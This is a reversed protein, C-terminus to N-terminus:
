ARGVIDRRPRPDSRPQGLARQLSADNISRLVICRLAAGGSLPRSVVDWLADTDLADVTADALPRVETM